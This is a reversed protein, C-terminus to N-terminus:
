LDVLNQDAVVDFPYFGARKLRLGANGWYCPRAVEELEPRMARNAAVGAVRLDQPTEHLAVLRRPHDEGVRWEVDFDGAVHGASRGALECHRGALHARGFKQLEVAVPERRGQTM